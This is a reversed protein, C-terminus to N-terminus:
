IAKKRLRFKYVSNEWWCVLDHNGSVAEGRREVARVRLEQMLFRHTWRRPRKSHLEDMEEVPVGKTEPMSFTFGDLM